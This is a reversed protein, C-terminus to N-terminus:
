VERVDMVGPADKLAGITRGSLQYGENLQIEIEQTMTRAVLVIRGHGKGDQSIIEKLTPVARDDDFYVMVKKTAKAVASDLSDVHQAGLRLQEGDLRADVSILLPQGSELLERSATLVESFFMAEYAGGADSLSVFAYRSGNKGVKEKRGGVIAAMKVPSQGGNKLYDVLDSSRVVSLRELTTSYSDLPHASLFFGIASREENLM